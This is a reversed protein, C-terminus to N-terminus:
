SLSKSRRSTLPSPHTDLISEVQQYCECLNSMVKREEEGEEERVRRGEEIKSMKQLADDYRERYKKIKKDCKQKDKNEFCYTLHFRYMYGIQELM